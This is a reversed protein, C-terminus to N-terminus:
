YPKGTPPQTIKNLADEPSVGTANGISDLPNLESVRKMVEAPNVGTITDTVRAQVSEVSPMVFNETASNQAVTVAEGLKQQITPIGTQINTMVEQANAGGFISSWDFNRLVNLGASVAGTGVGGTLLWDLAIAGGGFLLSNRLFKLVKNPSSGEKNLAKETIAAINNKIQDPSPRNLNSIGSMQMAGATPPM